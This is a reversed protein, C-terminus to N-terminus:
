DAVQNRVPVEVLKVTSQQIFRDVFPNDIVPMVRIEEERKLEFHYVNVFRMGAFWKTERQITDGIHWGDYIATLLADGGAYRESQPSWHQAVDMYEVHFNTPNQFM